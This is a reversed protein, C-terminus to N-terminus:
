AEEVQANEAQEEIDAAEGQEVYPSMASQQKWEEVTEDTCFTMNDVAAWTVASIDNPSKPEGKLVGSAILVTIANRLHESALEKSMLILKSARMDRSNKDKREERHDSNDSGLLHEMIKLICCWVSFLDVDAKLIRKLHHLFPKFILSICLEFEIMVEEQRDVTAIENKFIESLQNGALPFCIERLVKCLQDAPISRGQKDIFADTLM